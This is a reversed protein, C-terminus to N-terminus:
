EGAAEVARRLAVWGGPYETARARITKRDWGRLDQVAEQTPRVPKPSTWLEVMAARVMQLTVEQPRGGKAALSGAKVKGAVAAILEEREQQAELAELMSPYVKYRSV